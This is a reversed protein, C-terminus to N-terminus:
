EYATEITSSVRDLGARQLHLVSPRSGASITYTAGGSFRFHTALILFGVYATCNTLLNHFVALVSSFSNTDVSPRSIDTSAKTGSRHITGSDFIYRFLFLPADVHPLRGGLNAVVAPRTAMAAEAMAVLGATHLLVAMLLQLHPAELAAAMPLHLLAASDVVMVAELVVASSESIATPLAEVAAVEELDDAAADAVVVESDLVRM